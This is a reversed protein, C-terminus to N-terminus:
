EHKYSTIQELVKNKIREFETNDKTAILKYMKESFEYNESEAIQEITVYPVVNMGYVERDDLYTGCSVDFTVIDNPGMIALIKSVTFVKGPVSTTKVEELTVTGNYIKEIIEKPWTDPTKHLIYMNNFDFEYMPILYNEYVPIEDIFKVNDITFVYVDGLKFSCLWNSNDLLEEREEETMNTNKVFFMYNNHGITLGGPGISEDKFLFKVGKPVTINVEEKGGYFGRIAKYTVFEM